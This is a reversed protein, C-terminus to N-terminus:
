TQPQVMNRSYPTETVTAQAGPMVSYQSRFGARASVMMEPKSDNKELFSVLVMGKM